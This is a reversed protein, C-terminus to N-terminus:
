NYSFLFSFKVKKTLEEIKVKNAEIIQKQEEITIDDDIVENQETAKQTETEKDNQETEKQTEKEEDNKM